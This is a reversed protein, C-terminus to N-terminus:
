VALRSVVLDFQENSFPMKEAEGGVFEINVLGEESATKRGIELMSPTTDLATVAKVTKALARGLLATGAAVDLTLDMASPRIIKLIWDMIEHNGVTHRTDNFSSAQKKFESRVQSLHNMPFVIVRM